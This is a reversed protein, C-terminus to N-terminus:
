DSQSLVGAKWGKDYGASKGLFYMILGVILPTAVYYIYELTMM